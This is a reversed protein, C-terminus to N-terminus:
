RCPSNEAWGGAWCPVGTPRLLALADRLLEARRAAGPFPIGLARHEIENWGLGLGAVFRGGRLAPLGLTMRAGMGPARFTVPSVLPGVQVRRTEAAAVALATWAEI